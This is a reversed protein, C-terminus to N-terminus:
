FPKSEIVAWVDDVSDYTEVIKVLYATKATLGKDATTSVSTGAGTKYALKIDDENEYIHTVPLWTNSENVVFMDPTIEGGGGGGIDDAHEVFSALAMGLETTPADPLAVDMGALAYLYAEVDSQVSIEPEQGSFDEGLVYRGYVAGLANVLRSYDSM